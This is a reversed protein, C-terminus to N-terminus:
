YDGPVRITIGFEKSHGLYKIFKDPYNKKSLIKKGSFQENDEIIIKKIGYADALRAGTAVMCVYYESEDTVVTGYMVFESATNHIIKTDKIEVSKGKYFSCAANIDAELNDSKENAEDLFLEKMGEGGNDLSNVARSYLTNINGENIGFFISLASIAAVILLIYIVVKAKAKM